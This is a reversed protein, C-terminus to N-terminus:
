MSNVIGQVLEQSTIVFLVTLAEQGTTFIAFNTNIVLLGTLQGLSEFTAVTTKSTVIITDEAGLEDTFVRVKDDRTTPIHGDLDPIQTGWLTDAM